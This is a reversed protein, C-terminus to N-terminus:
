DVESGLGTYKKSDSADELAVVAEFKTSKPRYFKRKSPQRGELNPKQQLQEFKYFEDSIMFKDSKENNQKKVQNLNM